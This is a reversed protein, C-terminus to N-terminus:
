VQMITFHLNEAKMALSITCLHIRVESLGNLTWLLYILTCVSKILAAELDDIRHAPQKEKQWVGVLLEWSEESM